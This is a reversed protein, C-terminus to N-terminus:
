ELLISYKWSIYEQKDRSIDRFYFTEEEKSFIYKRMKVIKEEGCYNKFYFNVTYHKGIGYNKIHVRFTDAYTGFFYEKKREGYSEYKKYFEKKFDYKKQDYNIYKNQNYANYSGQIITKQIYTVKKEQKQELHSLGLGVLILIFVLVVFIMALFLEITRKKSLM